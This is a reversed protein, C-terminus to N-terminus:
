KRLRSDFYFRRQSLIKVSTYDAHQCNLIINNASHIISSPVKLALTSGQDIWKQGIEALICPAPFQYWNSPLDEANIETISDDPIQLTLIDSEPIIMPPIHVITELLAIEKSEGTYLVPTGKKNWRGPYLAAGTGSIDSAKKSKAIRFVVM